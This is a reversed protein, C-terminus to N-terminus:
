DAVVTSAYAFINEHTVQEGILEQSIRNKNFVLVRPCIKAVEEFDTSILLLSKGTALIDLFIQYIEARAGVDVGATPDELILIDNDIDLWRSLVVKQQNGGSLAAIDTHPDGPHIDLQAIYHQSKAALKRNRYLQWPRYGHNQQNLFLNEELSMNMILSERSRNAALLSIGHKIAWHPSLSLKRESRDGALIYSQGMLHLVGSRVAQMGFLSRGIQEHGAGRLGVLGLLEGAELQLNFPGVEETAFNELALLVKPEPVTESVEASLESLPVRYSRDVQTKGVIHTVMQETAMAGTAADAVVAGDRIILVRDSIQSVEDMRHTVYIMGVGRDKLTQIIEFLRHVDEAPLSATPEDLVLLEARTALARAIAVIAKEAQSLDFVRRRPSLDVGVQDLAAKAKREVGKWDILGCRSRPFGLCFAMNEAVTMWDILGLDQHIFAIPKNKGSHISTASEIEGYRNFYIQGEDKSYRGALIKILTSKGAGNEGLFALIEAKRLYLSVDKLVLNAGFAKSIHRM